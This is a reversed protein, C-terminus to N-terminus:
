LSGQLGISGEGGPGSDDHSASAGLRLELRPVVPVLAVLDGRIGRVDRLGLWDNIAPGSRYQGLRGELDVPGLAVDGGLYFGPRRLTTVLPSGVGIVGRLVERPGIRLEADPSFGISPASDTNHSLGQYVTGGAEVGVYKWQYGARAHAGFMVKDPPAIEDSADCTACPEISTSEHEAAGAVEATYGSGGFRGSSESVRVRAGVGGYVAHAAPGCGWNGSTEGGYAVGEVDTAAHVRTPATACLALSFFVLLTRRLSM